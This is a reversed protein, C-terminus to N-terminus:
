TKNSARFAFSYCDGRYIEHNVQIPRSDETSVIRHVSILPTGERIGFIKANVSDAVLGDIVGEACSPVVGYDYKLVHYLSEKSFDYRDIGSFFQKNMWTKELGFIIDGDSRLRELVFVMRNKQIKLLQAIESTAPEYKANLVRCVYRSDGHEIYQSIGALELFHVITKPKAVRPRKGKERVLVGEAVLENTAQRVTIRTVGTIKAIEVESLFVDEPLFARSSIAKLIQGKIQRYLPENQVNQKVKTFLASSNHIKKNNVFM